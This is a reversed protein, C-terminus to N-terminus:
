SWANPRSVSPTAQHGGLGGAPVQGGLEREKGPRELRRGQVVRHGPQGFPGAGLAPGMLLKQGGAQLALDGGALGVAAFPADARRAERGALAQLLEVVAV